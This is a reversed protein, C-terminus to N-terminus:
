RKVTFKGNYNRNQGIISYFYLGPSLDVVSFQFINKGSQQPYGPINKVEAGYTNLVILTVEGQVNESLPINLFDASPNPYCKGTLDPVSTNETGTSLSLLLDDVFMVSGLHVDVGTVPGTISIQIIALDPVDTTTYNLPVTLRTYSSVTAPLAVAGQAIPNGEKELAVNVSFKDGGVSTFKYYLEFSYFQESVPFGTGGPGSQIVPAMPTSFFDVVEGRLASSGSHNDTTQTVNILGAPFVNSTVWGDPDGSTWNEFGPNPIQANITMTIGCILAMLSNLPKKM